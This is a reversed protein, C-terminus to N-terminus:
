VKNIRIYKQFANSHWRGVSRIFADSYGRQAYDSARGIRLSHSKYRSSDFGCFDLSRKLYFDFLSRSVPLGNALVFLPGTQPGRLTLYSELALVPSIETHGHSFTIHHPKGYSHKFYRFTVSVSIAKAGVYNVNVDQFQVLQHQQYARALALEGCRAFTSFAFLFMARFLCSHFYTRAVVTLSKVIKDLIHVTIPLRLDYSPALCQAGRVLRTILFHITPDPLGLIKHVYAIASLYTTITKHSLNGKHLHAVFLAVTAISLPPSLIENFTSSCFSTFHSWAKRYTQVSSTALSARLM